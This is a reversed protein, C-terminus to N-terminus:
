SAAAVSRAFGDNRASLSPDDSRSKIDHSVRHGDEESSERVETAASAKFNGLCM